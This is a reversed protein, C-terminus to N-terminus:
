TNILANLRELQPRFFELAAPDNEAVSVVTDIVMNAKEIRLRDIEDAARRMTTSYGSTPHYSRLKDTLECM